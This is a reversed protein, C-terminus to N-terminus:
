RPNSSRRGSWEQRGRFKHGERFRKGRQMQLAGTQGVTEWGPMLRLLQDHVVSTPELGMAREM